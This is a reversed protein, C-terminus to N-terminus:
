RARRQMPTGTRVYNKFFRKRPVRPTLNRGRAWAPIGSLGLNQSIRLKVYDDATVSQTGGVTKASPSIYGTEFTDWQSVPLSPNQPNNDAPWPKGQSGYWAAILGNRLDLAPGLLASGAQPGYIGAKTDALVKAQADAIAKADPMAPTGGTPTAPSASAYKSYLWYGGGLILAWKLLDNM